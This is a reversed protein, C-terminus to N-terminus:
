SIYVRMVHTFASFTLMITTGFYSCLTINLIFNMCLLPTPQMHCLSFYCYSFIHKILYLNDVTRVRLYLIAYFTQKLTSLSVCIAIHMLRNINLLVNISRIHAVCLINHM